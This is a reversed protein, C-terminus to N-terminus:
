HVLKMVEQNLQWKKGQSNYRKPILNSTIKCYNFDTLFDSLM